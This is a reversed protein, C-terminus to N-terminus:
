NIFTVEINQSRFLDRIGLERQQETTYKSDNIQMLHICTSSNCRADEKLLWQAEEPIEPLNMPEGIDLLEAEVKGCSLLYFGLCCMKRDSERLLKSQDPSEGKLWKQRDIVLQKIQKDNEM